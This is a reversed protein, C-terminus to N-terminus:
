EPPTPNTSIPVWPRDAANHYKHAMARHYELRRVYRRELDDSVRRAVAIIRNEAPSGDAASGLGSWARNLREWEQWEPSGQMQIAIRTSQRDHEAALSRYYRGMAVPWMLLVLLGVALMMRRITFRMRALRMVKVEHEVAFDSRENV